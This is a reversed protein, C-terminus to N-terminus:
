PGLLPKRTNGMDADLPTVPSASSRPSSTKSRAPKPSCATPEPRGRGAQYLLVTEGIGALEGLLARVSLDLGARAAARRMLHAIQLALVCTFVHVRINHGTWHHMPSFSVARTDKLQRFSFEAESQSRYGAVVEPVPWDHHGTILVHKGFIEEELAVRAGVDINWTLRLDKPQDGTLEWTIVRRVWPKGTIATIEAEVKDKGRRTKGRALTAALEDLKKGAKALTTGDFGAAQSKHLEPSHTLIARRQAGYVERRTDFATLGGFRDKDVVSRASAPLATLDPCDSAPVSGIYHLRIGALHAFNAESNQGADFVVTLDPDGRPIGAAAAVTEYQSRLQDIMATFQTVDPRDGPYAHWTLPIGGDRTVVLGLGVLRLDARKQKAKGRQAIPATGNATDIFTAFNTMDLAVSSVDVGSSQVIRVAITRSIKELQKLTVGHMADWFRRHDLAPAPIKTFRAAATTKWWDAFAAKSCPAVLRNLAALALYTGTSLPQGAPRPGAAEDIIGAVGLDELMGWAAAVAGFDKHGTRDPLGLGGGRMAAALEEATGLYEQSVIRPKGDVRASEVLYYYTATGRKKGVISAMYPYYVKLFALVLVAM